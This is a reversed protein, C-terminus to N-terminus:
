ASADGTPRPNAASAASEGHASGANPGAGEAKARKPPGWLLSVSMALNILGRVGREGALTKIFTGAEDAPNKGLAFAYTLFKTAGPITRCLKCLEEVDMETADFWAATEARAVTDTVPLRSLAENKQANIIQRSLAALDDLQLLPLTYTKGGITEILPANFDDAFSM